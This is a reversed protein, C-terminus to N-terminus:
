RAREFGLCIDFPRRGIPARLDKGDGAVERVERRHAHRGFPHRIRARFTDVDERVVGAHERARVNGRLVAEVDLHLDVVERVEEERLPQHRQQLSRRTAVGPDDLVRGEGPAVRHRDLGQALPIQLPIPPVESAVPLSKRVVARSPFPVM